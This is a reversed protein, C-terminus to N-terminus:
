TRGDGNTDGADAVSYGLREEQTDGTIVSNPIESLLPDIEVPCATNADDVVLRVVSGAGLELHATLARGRADPARLAAYGGEAGARGLLLRQV